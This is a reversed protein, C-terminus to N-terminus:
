PCLSKGYNSLTSTRIRRLESISNGSNSLLDWNSSIQGQEMLIRLILQFRAANRQKNELPIKSVRVVDSLESMNKFACIGSAAKREKASTKHIAELLSPLCIWSRDESDRPRQNWFLPAANSPCLAHHSTYPTM